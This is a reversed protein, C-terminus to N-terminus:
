IPSALTSKAHEIYCQNRLRDAGLFPRVFTRGKHPVSPSKVLPNEGSSNYEHYLFDGELLDVPPPRKQTKQSFVNLRLMKQSFVNPRPFRRDSSTKRSFDETLLCKLLIFQHHIISSPFKWFSPTLISWSLNQCPYPMLNLKPM